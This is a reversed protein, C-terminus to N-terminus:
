PCGAFWANLYDFLDQVHLTGDRNFDVACGAAVGVNTRVNIRADGTLTSTNTPFSWGIEPFGAGFGRM